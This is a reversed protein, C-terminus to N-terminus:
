SRGDVCTETRNWRLVIFKFKQFNLVCSLKNVFSSVGTCCCFVRTANPLDGAMRTFVFYMFEM